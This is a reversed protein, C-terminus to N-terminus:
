MGGGPPRPRHAEEQRIEEEISQKEAVIVADVKNRFERYWQTLEAPLTAELTALQEAVKIHEESGADGCVEIQFRREELDHLQQQLDHTTRTM